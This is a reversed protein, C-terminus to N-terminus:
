QQMFVKQTLLSISFLPFIKQPLRKKGHRLIDIRGILYLKQIKKSGVKNIWRVVTSDNKLM